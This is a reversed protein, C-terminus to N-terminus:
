GGSGQPLLDVVIVQRLQPHLHRGYYGELMEDNAGLDKINMVPGIENMYAEIAVLGVQALGSRNQGGPDCEPPYFLFEYYGTIGSVLFGQPTHLTYIAPAKLVDFIVAFGRGTLRITHEQM